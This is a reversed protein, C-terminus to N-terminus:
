AERGAVVVGFVVAGAFFGPECSEEPLPRQVVLLLVALDLLPPTIPRLFLVLLGSLPWVFADDSVLCGHVPLHLIQDLPNPPPVKRRPDPHLVQSWLRSLHIVLSVIHRVLPIILHSIFPFPLPRSFSPNCSVILSIQRSFPFSFRRKRLSWYVDAFWL